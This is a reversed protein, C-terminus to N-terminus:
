CLRMSLEALQKHIALLTQNTEALNVTNLRNMNALITLQNLNNGIAKLESIMPALDDIVVIKRNMACDILFQSTSRNTRNARNTINAKEESTIRLNFRENKM